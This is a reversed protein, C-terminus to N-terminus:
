DLLVYDIRGEQSLRDFDTQAIARRWSGYFERMRRRQEPSDGADYRRALSSQDAAFREVVNAMESPTHGIMPQLAPADSPRAPADQQRQAELPVVAILTSACVATLRSRLA